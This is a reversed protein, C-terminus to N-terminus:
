QPATFEHANYGQVEVQGHEGRQFSRGIQLLGLDEDGNPSLQFDHSVSKDDTEVRCSLTKDSTNHVNLVYGHLDTLSNRFSTTVPAACGTLIAVALIAILMRM